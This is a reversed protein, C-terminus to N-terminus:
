GNYLQRTTDHYMQLTQHLFSEIGRWEDKLEEMTRTDEEWDTKRLEAMHQDYTRSGEAFTTQIQGYSKQMESGAFLMKTLGKFAKDTPLNRFLETYGSLADLIADGKLHGVIPAIGSLIAMVGSGINAFILNKGQKKYNQVINEIHQLQLEREHMRDLREQARGELALKLVEFFLFLVDFQSVRMDLLQSMLASESKGYDMFEKSNFGSEEISEVKHQEEEEPNEHDRQKQDEAFGEEEEKRENERSRNQEVSERERITGKQASEQEKARGKENKLESKKNEQTKEKTQAPTKFSNRLDFSRSNTPRTPAPHYGEQLTKRGTQDSKQSSTSKEQKDMTGKESKQVQFEKQRLPASEEYSLHRLEGKSDFSKQDKPKEKNEFYESCKQSLPTQNQPIFVYHKGEGSTLFGVQEPQKGEEASEEGNMLLEEAGEMEVANTLTQVIASM